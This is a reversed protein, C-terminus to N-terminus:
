SKKLLPRPALDRYGVVRPRNSRAEGSM